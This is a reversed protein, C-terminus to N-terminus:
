VSKYLTNSIDTKLNLIGNILPATSVLNVDMESSSGVFWYIFLVEFIEILKRIM